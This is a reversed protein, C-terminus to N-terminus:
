SSRLNIGTAVESASGDSDFACLNRMAMLHRARM